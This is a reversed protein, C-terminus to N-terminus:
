ETEAEVAEVMREMLRVTMQERMAKDKMNHDLSQALEEYEEFLDEATANLEQKANSVVGLVAFLLLVTLINMGLLVWLLIKPITGM